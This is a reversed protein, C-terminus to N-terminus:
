SVLVFAHDEPECRLYEFICRGWLREMVDWDEIQAHKIPYTVHAVAANSLAEWGAAFAVDALSSKKASQSHVNASSTAASAMKSMAGGGGGVVGSGGGVNNSHASPSMHKSAVATPIIHLPEENGAFGLKTYRLTHSPTFTFILNIKKAHFQVFVFAYGTGCDIVAPKNHM